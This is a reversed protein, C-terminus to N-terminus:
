EPTHGTHDPDRDSIRQAAAAYEAIDLVTVSLLEGNWYRDRLLYLLVYRSEPRPSMREARCLLCFVTGTAEEREALLLLPTYIPEAGGRVASEFSYLLFRDPRTQAAFTWASANGNEEPAAGSEAGTPANLLIPASRAPLFGGDEAASLFVLAFGSPKQERDLRRCLVCAESFDSLLSVGALPEYKRSARAEADRDFADLLGQSLEYTQTSLWVPAASAPAETSEAPSPETAEATAAETPAPTPTPPDEAKQTCGLLSLALAAALALCLCRKM